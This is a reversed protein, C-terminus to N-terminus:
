AYGHQMAMLRLSWSTHLPQQRAAMILILRCMDQNNADFFRTGHATRAIMERIYDGQYNIQPDLPHM